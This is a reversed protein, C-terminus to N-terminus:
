AKEARGVDDPWWSPRLPALPPLEEDAAALPPAGLGDSGADCEAADLRCLAM